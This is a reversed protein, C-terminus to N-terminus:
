IIRLGLFIDQFFNTQNLFFIGYFFGGSERHGRDINKKAIRNAVSSHYLCFANRTVVTPM